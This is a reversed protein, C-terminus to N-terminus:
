RLLDVFGQASFIMQKEEPPIEAKELLVRTGELCFIPALSGYVLRRTLGSQSLAEMNFLGDKLGSCDCFVDQRGLMVEQIFKMESIRINCVLIPFGTQEGIFQAVDWENVKKPHFMYTVREDEMRLTLFLPLRLERLLACLAGVVDSSLAYDHFGPLIRVGAVPWERAARRVGDLCGPLAPNVTIVHRYQPFGELERALKADAEYPDNYFIADTSSVFGGDIQNREHLNKLKELSDHRVRHFPWGGVFCNMDIRKM